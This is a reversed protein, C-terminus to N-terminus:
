NKIRPTGPLNRERFMDIQEETSRKPHKDRKIDQLHRKKGTVKGGM